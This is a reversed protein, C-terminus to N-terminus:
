MPGRATDSARQRTRCAPRWRSTCMSHWLRSCLFHPNSTPRTTLTEVPFDYSIPPFKAGVLMCFVPRIILIRRTGKATSYPDLQSLSPRSYISEFLPRVACLNLSSPQTGAPYYVPPPAPTSSWAWTSTQWSPWNGTSPWNTLGRFM